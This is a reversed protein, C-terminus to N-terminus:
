SDRLMRNRDHEGKQIRAAEGINSQFAVPITATSM